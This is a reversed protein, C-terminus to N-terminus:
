NMKFAMYIYDQSSKNTGDYGNPFSFGTSTLDIHVASTTYETDSSNAILMYRGTISGSPRKSDYINWGYQATSKIMVFDPQFGIDQANGSSGTGTYSGFKSYGSKPTWCYAIYNQGSTNVNGENGLSFVTSTPTTGNWYPAYTTTAVDLNLKLREENANGSSGTNGIHYVAWDRTNDLDKIIMVEPAAGLNHGVTTNAGTGTYKVISFGNATNTNTISPISGEINSQWTNGAKWCWAVFTQGSQNESNSSGVSFGDADFSTLTTNAYGQANANNSSLYHGAGRNNDYWMQDQTGSRQKIWVLDPKFGTGTISQSSGNGTYTVAKFSNALTTNSPVNKAFAYYTYLNGNANNGATVGGSTITFGTSTMTLNPANSTDDADTRNPELYGGGTIGRRTDYLRWNDAGVTSKILVFDPKFGTTIAQGASGNGTYTGFKSYGSVDHFCYAIHEDGAGNVYGDNGVTFVTATPSTDAMFGSNTAPAATDNLVFNKTAGVGSHYVEWDASDALNKIIIVNPAASLGHPIKQHTPYTGTYKVISFGANANASVITEKPAGFSLDDNDPETEAYLKDIDEQELVSKFYRAQDIKFDSNADGYNGKGFSWENGKQLSSGTANTVSIKEQKDLYATFKTATKTLVVHHWNGDRLDITVSASNNTAGGLIDVIYFSNSSSYEFNQGVDGSTNTSVLVRYGTNSSGPKFWFSWSEFNGATIGTDMNSSTGSFAVAKNFKGGSIFSTGSTGSGNYTGTVDNYNDEFKYVAAAPGGFLTPENDDAKWSWAVMNQGSGNFGNASGLTFGDSDFSTLGDATTDLANDSNTYLHKTAGNITDQINHWTTGGRQKLWVLNPAFGLGTISNSSGTGSWTEINFSSALTPAETDPDAAFAMYIYTSGNLAYNTDGTQGSADIIQFGNSLFSIYPKDQEAAEDNPFLLKHPTASSTRKNDHLLWNGTSSSRKIMLFAPEFGTEVIPGNDSGNGTYTGFKSFGEVSHFCYTIWNAGASSTVSRFTTSTAYTGSFDSKAATSNLVLEDWSGDIVDTYWFWSGSASYKKYLVVDPKSNLGHGITDAADSTSTWTVISFGANTNAQVTSTIDGDTNSSTTGGGAKWCWAVYTEGNQNVEPASGLTFGDSDFSNLTGSIVSAANTLDPFLRSNVGRTSDLLRHSDVGSREKIWIMDPQFGVGTIAQTGGNGTYIVAKFNESPTLAGSATAGAGILRKNLGM